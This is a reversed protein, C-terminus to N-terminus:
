ALFDPRLFGLLLLKSILTFCLPLDSSPLLLSATFCAGIGTSAIASHFKILLISTDFHSFLLIHREVMSILRVVLLGYSSVASVRWRMRLRVAAIIGM